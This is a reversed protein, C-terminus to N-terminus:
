KAYDTVTFNSQMPTQGRFLDFVSAVAQAQYELNANFQLKMVDGALNQLNAKLKVKSLEM